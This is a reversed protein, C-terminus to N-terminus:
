RSRPRTSRRRWTTRGTRSWFASSSGPGGNFAFTIPRRAGSDKKVYSVCGVSAWPEDEDNRVILTGATEAHAISVGGMVINHQTVSQEPKPPDKRGADTAPKDAPKEAPKDQAFAPATAVAGIL